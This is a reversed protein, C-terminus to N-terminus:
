HKAIVIALRDFCGNWADQAGESRADLLDDSPPTISTLTVKTRKGFEEFVVKFGAEVGSINESYDMVSFTLEQLPTVTIYEGTYEGSNKDNPDAFRFHGGPRVDLERVDMIIGPAFWKAILDPTTWANWVLECPADFIRTVLFDNQKNNQM